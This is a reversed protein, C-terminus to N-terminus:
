IVVDAPFGKLYIYVSSLLSVRAIESLPFLSSGHRRIICFLFFEVGM